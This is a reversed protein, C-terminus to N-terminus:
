LNMLVLYVGKKINVKLIIIIEYDVPINCYTIFIIYVFVTTTISSM